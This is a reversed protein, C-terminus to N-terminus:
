NGFYLIDPDASVTFQTFRGKRNQTYLCLTNFHMGFMIIIILATKNHEM